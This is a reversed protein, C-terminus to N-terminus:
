RNKGVYRHHTENYVVNKYAKGEAKVKAEKKVTKVGIQGRAHKDLLIKLDKKRKAKVDYANLGGPRAKPTKKAPAKYRTHEPRSSLSGGKSSRKGKNPGYKLEEQIPQKRSEKAKGEEEALKVGQNIYKHVETRTLGGHDEQNLYREVAAISIKGEMYDRGTYIAKGVANDRREEAKSKYHYGSAM